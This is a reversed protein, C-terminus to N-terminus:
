SQLPLCFSSIIRLVKNPISIWSHQNKYEDAVEPVMFSHVTQGQNNLPSTTGQPPRSSSWYQHPQPMTLSQLSLSASGEEFGNQAAKLKSSEENMIWSSYEKLYGTATIIDHLACSDRWKRIWAEIELMNGSLSAKKRTEPSIESIYLTRPKEIHPLQEFITQNRVEPYWWM